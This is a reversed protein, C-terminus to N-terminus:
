RIFGSGTDKPNWVILPKVTYLVPLFEEIFIKM